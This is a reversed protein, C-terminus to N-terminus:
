LVYAACIGAVLLLLACATIAFAGTMKKLQSSIEGSLYRYDEDLIRIKVAYECFAEADLKAVDLKHDVIRRLAFYRKKQFKGPYEAAMALLGLTAVTGYWWLASLVGEQISPRCLTHLEQLYTVIAELRRNMECSVGGKETQHLSGVATKAM